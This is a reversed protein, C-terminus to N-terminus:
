YDAAYSVEKRAENEGHRAMMSIGFLGQEITSLVPIGKSSLFSKTANLKEEILKPDGNTRLVGVVNVNLDDLLDFQKFMNSLTERLNMYNSLPILNIHFLIYSINNDNALISMIKTFTQGENATIARAPLDIPNINHNSESVGLQHLEDISSEELQALDLWLEECVDTALVSAGGGNGIMAINRNENVQLYQLCKLATFMEEMSHVYLTNTQNFLAKWVEYDGALNGTHSSVSKNGASTRGGKLIVVPKNPTVKSLTKALRKGNKVSEVYLGIVKTDSDDLLYEIFDSHDLDICNGVSIVKSYYIDHTDGNSVVDHAIGGSQSVFAISGKVPNKSDTFTIGGSPCYTGICNPGIIRMGYQKAVSLMDQEIKKGHEGFEGFGASYIQAVKVGKEACEKVVKLVHKTPLIIVARDVEDPIDLVSKYAKYGQVKEENPNVPFINGSYGFDNVKRLDAAGLKSMNNSAGIIAISKPKFAADLAEKTNTM